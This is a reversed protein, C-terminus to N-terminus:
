FESQPRLLEGRGDAARAQDLLCAFRVFLGDLRLPLPIPCLIALLDLFQARMRSSNFRLALTPSTIFETHTSAKAPM